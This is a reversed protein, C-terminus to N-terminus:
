KLEVILGIENEWVFELYGGVNIVIVFVECVELEIVVM